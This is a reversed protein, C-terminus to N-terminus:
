LQETLNKQFDADGSAGPENKKGTTKERDGEKKSEVCIVADSAESFNTGANKKLRVGRITSPFKGRGRSNKAGWSLIALQFRKTQIKKNSLGGVM